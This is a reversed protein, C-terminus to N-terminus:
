WAWTNGAMNAPKDSAQSSFNQRLYMGSIIEIIKTGNKDNTGAMIKACVTKPGIPQVTPVQIELTTYAPKVPGTEQNNPKIKPARYEGSTIVPKCWIVFAISVCNTASKPPVPKHGIIARDFIA